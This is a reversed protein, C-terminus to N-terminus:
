GASRRGSGTPPDGDPVADSKPLPLKRALEAALLSELLKRREPDTETALKSQFQRINERHVFENFRDPM